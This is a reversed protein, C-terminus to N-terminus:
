AKFMELDKLEEIEKSHIRMFAPLVYEKECVSYMDNEYMPSGYGIVFYNTTYPYVEVFRFIIRRLMSPHVLCFALKSINLRENANKVRIKCIIKRGAKETGFIVNINAKVGQVELKKVIQLVRVSESIIDKISVRGAYTVSKNITVVKEKVPINKKSIMNTPIGQLYRPVSAQYGCVDFKNVQRNGYVVNRSKAALKQNLEKAMDEWGYKMLEVAEEYSNTKTFEPRGTKSKLERNKFADNVPTNCLYNYFEEISKFEVCYTNNKINEIM